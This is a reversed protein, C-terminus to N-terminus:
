GEMHRGLFGAIAQALKYEAESVQVQDKDCLFAVCGLVDGEALIPAATSVVFQDTYSSVPIPVEGPHLQYIQRDEMRENLASSLPKDPLVRRCAGAAALCADRDTITVMRGTTKYLADCLQGSFESLGGMLSYKKFVVGGDSNTFIELPDGSNIVNVTFVKDQRHLASQVISEPSIDKSDWPFNATDEGDLHLLADIDAKLKVDFHDEYVTIRDIILSIDRKDLNPKTLISEFVTLVTKAKRNAQILRNRTDISGSIQAELGAIRQTLEDELEAYTETIIQAQDPARGLTDVIKRKLLAKLQGRTDELQRELSDIAQGVQAEREPQQRIAETLADMISESHDAVRRIYRKLLEDLKSVHVQHSTCAKRGRRLYAGCVYQPPLDKRSRSFLPSGCDGCFLFGSYDTAYKKEGRYHGTSRQRLLEQAYAFTGAELIPTHANEFVLQDEASVQEDAGNINKRRYKHQRLTGIYFDNKLISQISAISWVSRSTQKTPKGAAEKRAIENARPTPIGQDTLHNAIKKYGWGGTYLRFVERVVEAAPPDIEYSMEKTNTIRYGYPVACVWKGSKQRSLIIQKIKKSTDTVPIENMLFKFQILMWDDKTPYDIADGISIIRVRADRLTELELLGLSNRRSFRSFDKVVLVQYEGAMLKPRLLRYAERQDFTYGSRDRDEFFDLRADPFREAVFESIIKRQNEISTNDQDKEIDVSIRAYGAINM